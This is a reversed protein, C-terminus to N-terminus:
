IRIDYAGGDWQCDSCWEGPVGGGDCPLGNQKDVQEKLDSPVDDWEGFLVEPAGCNFKEITREIRARRIIKVM